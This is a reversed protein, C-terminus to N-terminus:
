SGNSNGYCHSRKKGLFRLQRASLGTRGGNLLPKLQYPGTHFPRSVRLIQSSTDPYRKCSPVSDKRKSNVGPASWIALVSTSVVGQFVECKGSEVKPTSFTTDRAKVQRWHAELLFSVRRGDTFYSRVDEESIKLSQSISPLDWEFKGTTFNPM